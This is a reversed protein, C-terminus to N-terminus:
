SDNLAYYFLRQAIERDSPRSPLSRLWPSLFEKAENVEILYQYKIGNLTIPNTTLWGDENQVGEHLTIESDIDIKDKQFIVMMDDVDIVDISDGLSRM